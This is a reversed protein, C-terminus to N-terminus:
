HLREQDPHIIFNTPSLPQDDFDFGDEEMGAGDGHTDHWGQKLMELLGDLLNQLEDQNRAHTATYYVGKVIARTILCSPCYGSEEAFQGIVEFALHAAQDITSDDPRHDLEQM